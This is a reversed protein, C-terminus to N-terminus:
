LPNTGVSQADSVAAEPAKREPPRKRQEYLYPM